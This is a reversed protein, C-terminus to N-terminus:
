KSIASPPFYKMILSDNLINLDDSSTNEENLDANDLLDRKQDLSEQSDAEGTRRTNRQREPPNDQPHGQPQDLPHDQPNDQPHDQPNDQPLYKSHFDSASISWWTDLAKVDGNNGEGSNNPELEHLTIEQLLPECIAKARKKAIESLEDKLHSRVHEELLDEYVVRYHPPPKLKSRCSGCCTENRVCCSHINEGIFLVLVFCFIAILGYVLSETKYGAKILREEYTLSEKCPIGTQSANLNTKLCLYWDGDFLIVTFWSVGLSIYDLFFKLLICLSNSSRRRLCCWGPFIRMQHIPETIYVFWALIGPPFIIFLVDNRHVGPRCSCVFDRELIYQLIFLLAVLLFTSVPHTFLTRPIQPFGSILRPM